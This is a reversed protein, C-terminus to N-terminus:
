SVLARGRHSRFPKRPFDQQELSHDTRTSYNMVSTDKTICVHMATDIFIYLYIYIYIFVCLSVWIDIGMDVFCGILVWMGIWRSVGMNSDIGLNIDNQICVDGNRHIGVESHTNIM